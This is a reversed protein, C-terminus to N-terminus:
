EEEYEEKKEPTTPDEYGEVEKEEKEKRKREEELAIEEEFKKETM